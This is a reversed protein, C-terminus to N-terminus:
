VQRVAEAVMELVASSSLHTGTDVASELETLAWEVRALRPETPARDQVWYLRADALKDAYPCRALWPATCGPGFAVALWTCLAGVGDLAPQALPAERGLMAEASYAPSCCWAAEKEAMSCAAGWNVLMAGRPTVMVNAPRVNCHVWGASHGAALARLLRPLVADACAMRVAAAAAPEGVGELQQEVWQELPLGSPHLVLVPWASAQTHGAQLLAAHIPEVGAAAGEQVGFSLCRPVLGEEPAGGLALAALSRREAEFARLVDATNKHAVKVAGACAGSLAASASPSQLPQWQYVDSSSRCGLRDGLQLQLQQGGAVWQEASRAEVGAAEAGQLSVRLSQLPCASEGLMSSPAALLRRLAALGAPPPCPELAESQQQQLPLPLAPSRLVPCPYANEFSGGAAPAGSRMRLLVISRGDLAVGYAEIGHLAAGKYVARRCLRYVRQQMHRCARDVAAEMARDGSLQVTVFLLAGPASPAADRAATLTFDPATRTSESHGRQWIRLRGAPAALALLARIAPHVVGLREPDPAGAPRTDLYRQWVAASAGDDAPAGQLLSAVDQVAPMFPMCIDDQPDGPAFASNANLRMTTMFIQARLVESYHAEAASRSAVARDFRVGAEALLASESRMREEAKLCQAEDQSAAAARVLAEAATSRAIAARLHATESGAHACAAMRSAEAAEVLATTARLRVHPMGLLGLTPALRVRPLLLRGIAGLM